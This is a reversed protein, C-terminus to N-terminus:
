RRCSCAPWPCKPAFDIRLIITQTPLPACSTRTLILCKGMNILKAKLGCSKAPSTRRAAEWRAAAAISPQLRLIARPNCSSVMQALSAPPQYTRSKSPRGTENGGKEQPKWKCSHNVGPGPDSSRRTGSSPPGARGESVSPLGHRLWETDLPSATCPAATLFLSVYQFPFEFM